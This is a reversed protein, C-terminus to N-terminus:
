GITNQEVYAPPSAGATTKLLDNDHKNANVALNAASSIRKMLNRSLDDCKKSNIYLVNYIIQEKYSSVVIM